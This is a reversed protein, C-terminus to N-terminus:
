RNDFLTQYHQLYDTAHAAWLSELNARVAPDWGHIVVSRWGSDGTGRTFFETLGLYSSTEKPSMSWQSPVTAGFGPDRTTIACIVVGSNVASLLNNLGKQGSVHTVQYDVGDSRVHGFGQTTGVVARFYNNWGLTSKNIEDMVLRTYKPYEVGGVLTTGETYAKGTTENVGAPGYDQLKAGEEGYFYDALQCAAIIQAEDKDASTPIVTGAGKNTRSDETYRTLAFTSKHITNEEWKTLPPLIPMIGNYKYDANGIGNEDLKNYVTQTANYDYMLLAAGKDGTLYKSTYSGGTSAEFGNIILGESYLQHLYTLAEYTAPNTRADALKGDKNFYLFEKESTLGRVGWAQAFYLISDIRSDKTERPILGHVSNANGYLYTSNNVACRMLAILDDVTYCAHEATFVESRKAYIGTGMYAADIYDKLAQVYTAGNKTALENQAAIPNKAAKLTITKAKGAVSVQVKQDKDTNIFPQYQVEKAAQTDYNGSLKADDDLLYQVLETNMLFMKEPADLGDFYPLMYLEGDANTMESVVTPHEELFKAFNPMYDLYDNLNVLRGQANMESAEASGTMLLDINAFNANDKIKNWQDKTAKQTYNDEKFDRVADNIKCKLNQEVAKWMPLLDGETYTQGDFPNTYNLGNFSDGKGAKLGTYTVGTEKCYNIYVNMQRGELDANAPTKDCGTASALLLGALAGVGLIKAKKM